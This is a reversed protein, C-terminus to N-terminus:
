QSWAGGVEPDRLVGLVTEQQFRDSGAVGVTVAKDTCTFRRQDSENFRSNIRGGRGSGNLTMLVPGPCSVAPSGM